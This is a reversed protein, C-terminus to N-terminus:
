IYNNCQQKFTNRGFRNAHGIFKLTVAAYILVKTIINLAIQTFWHPNLARETSWHPNLARQTSWHPNLARQTSWYPNLSSM